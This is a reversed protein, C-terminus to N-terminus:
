ITNFFPNIFKVINNLCQAAEPIMPPWLAMTHIGGEIIDLEVKIGANRAKEAFRTSNDLLMEATGVQLFLPPLGRLDGYIPSVEPNHQKDSTGIYSTKFLAFAEPSLFTDELAKTLYTGDAQWIDLYPSILIGAVPLPIKADRAKLLTVMALNGGASEGIIIVYKPFVKTSLLWKYATFTDDVAAPYPHEPALRYEVSLVRAKTARSLRGLFDRSNKVSGAIFGGGHYHLIINKQVVGSATIWEAPVGGADVVEVKVDDPISITSMNDLGERVTQVTPASQQRWKLLQQSLKQLAPSVLDFVGSKPFYQTTDTKNYQSEKYSYYAWGTLLLNLYVSYM